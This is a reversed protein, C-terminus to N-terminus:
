LDSSPKEAYIKASWLRGEMHEALQDLALEGDNELSEILEALEPAEGSHVLGKITTAGFVVRDIVKVNCLGASQLGKVYDNEDIAGAICAGYLLENRRVWDPLAGPEVVIDSIQMKGEPRLVREIESFVSPKDPSLNIVCNSIVWDVSSDEIPLAEIIGQRVEINNFGSQAINSRAKNVMADTMDVGIVKGTDGVKEAAILLDIGAGAGLDLVTDGVKVDAFALPQGCGLSNEVADAPLEAVQDAEYEVLRVTENPGMEEAASSGKLVRTYTKSVAERISHQDSETNAVM